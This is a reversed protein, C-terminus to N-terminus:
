CFVIFLEPFWLDRPLRGVGRPLSCGWLGALQLLAWNTQSPLPCCEERCPCLPRHLSMWLAALCTCHGPLPWFSPAAPASVPHISPALTSCRVNVHPLTTPLDRGAGAQVKQRGLGLALIGLHGSLLGLEAARARSQGVSRSLCVHLVPTDLQCSTNFFMKYFPVSSIITIM